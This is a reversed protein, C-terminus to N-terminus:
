VKGGGLSGREVSMEFSGVTSRIQTVRESFYDVLLRMLDGALNLEKLRILVNPWWAHDFAVKIDM